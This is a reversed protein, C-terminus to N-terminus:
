PLIMRSPCRFWTKSRAMRRWSASSFNMPVFRSLTWAVLRKTQSLVLPALPGHYLFVEHILSRGWSRRLVLAGWWNACLPLWNSRVTSSVGLESFSKVGERRSDLATVGRTQCGALHRLCRFGASQIPTVLIDIFPQLVAGMSVHGSSSEIASGEVRGSTLTDSLM